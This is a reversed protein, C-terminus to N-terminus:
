GFSALQLQHLYHITCLQTMIRIGRSFRLTFPIEHLCLEVLVSLEMYSSWHMICKKLAPRRAEM